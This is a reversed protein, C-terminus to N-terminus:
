GAMLAMRAFDKLLAELKEGGEAGAFDAGLASTLEARTHTGDLLTLLRRAVDDSLQIGDHYANPVVANYASIWRAPAFALPREGAASAARVPCTRVDLLGAIFHEMLVEELPASAVFPVGPPAMREADWAAIDSVPVSQPWRALLYEMLARADNDKYRMTKGSGILLRFPQAPSIHMGALREPSLKLQPLASAHCILSSRFPRFRIFDLYQERTLRHMRGLIDLVHPPLQGATMSFLDAEVLFALGSRSADAVFEHFYVPDNTENLDDHCLAGDTRIAVRRFESLLVDSDGGAQGGSDVILAILERAAAVKSTVDSCDKTHFLLMDRTAQRVRCGPFLNYSVLAVGNPTLHRAILPMLHRRVDLPVWSYVGHIIIYDFLGANAPIDRLDLQTITVNRLGLSEVTQQARVVPRTANDYGVFEAAPLTAAMPILNSGDGCGIELVRCSVAPTADFGHLIAITALHDPHTNGFPHGPYSVEDYANVTSGSLQELAGATTDSL